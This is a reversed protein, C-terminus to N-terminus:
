RWFDFFNFWQSPSKCAQEELQRVYSQVYPLVSAKRDRGLKIEDAIDSLEISFKDGNKVCWLASMKVGLIGALLYPGYNFKAMKGLFSVEVFKDGNVPTRDGMICINVGSDVAEKLQMMVATDLNEVSILKIQGKSIQELIKYFKESGKSYVLIIMRFSPSRLSLAKCIEVNGLHSTLLVRGSKSAEFEEKIWMLENFDLENELVGNQWIRFKDCIAIGFDYFNRFVGTYPKKGSFKEVNLLFERINERESKSFIYYFCVVIMVIPKILFIPLNKTLFLSVRLFFENSREGKQWWAYKQGKFAKGLLFPVLSFFYKAHMLSILVNDKLMKFHSVGGKEYRVNLPIWKLRTGARVANVLIEMDFEMRNSSSQLTVSELEKLPYIRFGCMADKINANLTNVKVWFNTIKRGYFRSKPADEGYIPDALIMDHPYKRSLELFEAVESIDHQFDADIQFAHTYGNQLAHRFGDKLAAGKGGNQERTFIEVGFESLNELAKKSTENSGDDVILIHLNYNALAKCLARIKEPHNYFPILFLTKM